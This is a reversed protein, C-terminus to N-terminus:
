SERSRFPKLKLDFHNKGSSGQLRSPSVKIPPFQRPFLPNDHNVLAASCQRNRRKIHNSQRLDRSVRLDDIIVKPYSTRM